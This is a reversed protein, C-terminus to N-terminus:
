ARAGRSEEILALFLGELLKRVPAEDSNQPKPNEAIEGQVLKGDAAM